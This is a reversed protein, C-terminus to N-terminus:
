ENKLKYIFILSEKNKLAMASFVYYQDKVFYISKADSFRDSTTYYIDKNEVKDIGQLFEMTFTMEAALRGDETNKPTMKFKFLSTNLKGDQKEMKGMWERNKIPWNATELFDLDEFKVTKNWDGKVEAQYIITPESGATLDNLVDQISYEPPWERRKEDPFTNYTTLKGHVVYINAIVPADLNAKNSQCGALITSVSLLTAILLKKM